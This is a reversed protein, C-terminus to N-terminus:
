HISSVICLMVGGWLSAITRPCVLCLLPDWLSIFGLVLLFALGVGDLGSKLM